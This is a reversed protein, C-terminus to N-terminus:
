KSALPLAKNANKLANYYDPAILHFPINDPDVIGNFKITSARMFSSKTDQSFYKGFREHNLWAHPVPTNRDAPYFQEQEQTSEYSRKGNRAPAPASHNWGAPTIQMPQDQQSPTSTPIYDGGYYTDDQGSMIARLMQKQEEHSPVKRRPQQVQQQVPVQQQPMSQYSAPAVMFQQTPPPVHPTYQQPPAQYSPISYTSASSASSLDAYQNAIRQLHRPLSNEQKQRKNSEEIWQQLMQNQTEASAVRSSAAAVLQTVAQTPTMSEMAKHEEATTTPKLSSLASLFTQMLVKQEKSSEELKKASEDREKKNQYLRDAHVLAERKTLEKVRGSMIKKEVSEYVKAKEEDTAKDFWDDVAEQSEEVDEMKVDGQQVAAPPPAQAQAQQQMLLPQRMAVPGGPMNAAAQAFAALQQQSTTQAQAMAQAQAQAQQQQQQQQYQAIAIAEMPTGIMNTHPINAYNADMPYEKTEPEYRQQQQQQAQAPALPDRQMVAQQQAQAQAPPAPTFPIPVIGRSQAEAVTIFKGTNPDKPQNNNNASAPAVQMETDVVPSPSLSRPAPPEETTSEVPVKPEVTVEPESTPAPAPAPISEEEKEHQLKYEQFNIIKEDKDIVAVVGTNPRMGREVLSVELPIMTDYDSKSCLSAGRNAKTHHLAYNWLLSSNKNNNFKVECLLENDKEPNIWAKLVKGIVCRDQHVRTFGTKEDVGDTGHEIQLPINRFLPLARNVKAKTLEYAKASRAEIKEQRSYSHSNLLNDDLRIIYRDPLIKRQKEWDVNVIEFDDPLLKNRTM